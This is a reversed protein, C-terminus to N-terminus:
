YVHVKRPDILKHWILNFNHNRIVPEMCEKAYEVDSVFRQYQVVTFPIGLDVYNYIGTGLGLRLVNRMAAEQELLSMASWVSKEISCARHLQNSLVPDKWRKSIGKDMNNITIFVHSIDSINWKCRVVWEKINLQFGGLHKVVDPWEVPKGEDLCRILKSDRLIEYVNDPDGHDDFGEYKPLWSYGLARLFDVVLGSGSRGEGTVLIM